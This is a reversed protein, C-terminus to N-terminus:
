GGQIFRRSQEGVWPFEWENGNWASYMLYLWLALGGLGLLMALLFFGIAAIWGLVPIAGLVTSIVTFVVWFVIWAVSIGISQAAHFRVFPNKKELVLFLIGTFPGLLYSLAGAVNPALGSSNAAEGHTPSPPRHDPTGTDTM